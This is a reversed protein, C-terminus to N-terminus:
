FMQRVVETAYSGKALEFEVVAKLKGKNIEDNEFKYELEKPFIILNREDGKSSLEPMPKIKFDEPKIKEYDLIIKIVDKIEAYKGIDTEYGILPIKINKKSKTKKAIENWLFSQYAHIFMKKLGFPLKRLAGAYDNPYKKLHNLMALEFKMGSFDKLAQTIDRTEMLKERAMRRKLTESKSSKALYAWVAKKLDNKIIYKGVLHTIKRGSGFRQYGFFNVVGSKRIRVAAGKIRREDAKSLDRITIRFRNAELDGIGIDRDAYRFDSLEIDKLSVSKLREISVSFVSVTQYTVANKDKTGAYGFRKVSVDLQRAIFKLAKFMDWNKKKLTFWVYKANPDEYVYKELSRPLTEVVVFDEPIQKIKISM